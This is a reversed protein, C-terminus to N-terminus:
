SPATVILSFFFFCCTFFCAAARPGAYESTPTRHLGLAGPVSDRCGMCGQHGEMPILHDHCANRGEYITHRIRPAIFLVQCSFFRRRELNARPRPKVQSVPPWRPGSKAWGEGSVTAPCSPGCGVLHGPPWIGLMEGRTLNHPSLLLSMGNRLSFSLSRLMPPIELCRPSMVVMTGVEELHLLGIFSPFLLESDFM